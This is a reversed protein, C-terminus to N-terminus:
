KRLLKLISDRIQPEGWRDAEMSAAIIGEERGAEWGDAFGGTYETETQEVSGHIDKKM